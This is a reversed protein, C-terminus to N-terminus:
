IKLEGLIPAGKGQGNIPSGHRFEQRQELVPRLHKSIEPSSVQSAASFIWLGALSFAFFVTRMEFTHFRREIKVSLSFSFLGKNSSDCHSKQGQCCPCFSTM